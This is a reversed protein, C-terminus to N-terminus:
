SATFYKHEGLTYSIHSKFVATLFGFPTKQLFQFLLFMQMIHLDAPILNLVILLYFVFM